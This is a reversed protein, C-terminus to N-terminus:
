TIQIEWSDVVALGPSKVVLESAQGEKRAGSAQGDQFTWPLEQGGVSVSHPRRKIGLIVIKEFAVHGIARAWEDSEEYPVVATGDIMAEHTSQLPTSALKGGTKESTYTFNRWIYAGSQYAFSEGDDMYLQGTASGASSLAVILTPPDQWM